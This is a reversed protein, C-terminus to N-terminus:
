HVNKGQSQSPAEPAVTAPPPSAALQTLLVSRVTDAFIKAKPGNRLAHTLEFQVGKGTAGRNCVNTPERGPYNHDDTRSDIGAAKLAAHFAEIWEQDLGGIYVHEGPSDSGHIAVVRVHTSIMELCRPEDFHHSTIHLVGNGGGAKKGRFCYASFEEGAIQQALPGTKPEIGGAHPAIIAISTGPVARVIIEYDIGEKEFKALQAHNSYKDSM